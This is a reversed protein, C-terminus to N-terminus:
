FDIGFFSDLRGLYSIVDDVNSFKHVKCWDSQVTDM